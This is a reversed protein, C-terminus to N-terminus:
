ISEFFEDLKWQAKEELLRNSTDWSTRVFEPYKRNKKLWDGLFKITLPDHPYGTGIRINHKKEIKAIAKDREVKAIISAASCVPYASDAGHRTILKMKKWNYRRIRRAFKREDPDPADIYVKEPSDKMSELMEAIYMAEIENLSAYRRMKDIEKASLLVFDFDRAMRKIKKALRVRKAPSLEKSDRVGMERLVEGDKEEVAVCALVMPGIVPGRGAEDAGAILM